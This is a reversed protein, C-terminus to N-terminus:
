VGSPAAKERRGEPAREPSAKQGDPMPSQGRSAREGRPAPLMSQDIDRGLATALEIQHDQEQVLIERIHEAIAFEGLSECQRVRERYQRVTEDENDLDFQLMERADESTKVPKPTVTPSGGLYDIQRAIELAHELEEKAHQELEEAITMYEAGKLTRSYVVYAIIAQYERALDDNLRDILAERTLTEGKESSATGQKNTM